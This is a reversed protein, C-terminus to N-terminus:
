DPPICVSDAVGLLTLGASGIDPNTGSIVCDVLTVLASCSAGLVAGFLTSFSCGCAVGAVGLDM